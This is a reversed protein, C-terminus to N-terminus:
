DIAVKAFVPRSALRERWAALKALPPREVPFDLCRRVIPGLSFEALTIDPGALWSGAGLAGELILLQQGLDAIEKALGPSREAAPKKAERFVAVYPNYIASLQWDMWQEVRARAAPATPYFPSGRMNCLYRLITNSEWVVVEGDVLTPVKANPNLRRYEPTETNGFQRGYDERAYPEGMEELLWIVKQVNGSTKRGLVRVM